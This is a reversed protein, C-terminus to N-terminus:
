GCGKGDRFIGLYSSGVWHCVYMLSEVIECVSSFVSWSSSAAVHKYLFQSLLATVLIHDSKNSMEACFKGQHGICTVRVLRAATLQVTSGTFFFSGADEIVTPFSLCSHLRRKLTSM